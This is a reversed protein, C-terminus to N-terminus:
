QMPQREHKDLYDRSVFCRVPNEKDGVVLMSVLLYNRQVYERFAPFSEIRDAYNWFWHFCGAAVADVILDPKERQIDALFGARLHERAPSPDILFHCIAHRTAPPVPKQVYLSPMWGWVAMGRADPCISNLEKVIFQSADRDKGWRKSLPVEITSIAPIILQLHLGVAISWAVWRRPAASSDMTWVIFICGALMAIPQILLIEYHPFLFPPKLVAAVNAAALLATVILLDRARDSAAKWGKGLWFIAFCMLGQLLVSIPERSVLAVTRVLFTAGTLGEGYALNAKVYSIWFDEFASAAFVAGLILIAPLAVSFSFALLRVLRESTQGPERVMQWGLWTALAAAGLVSQLKAWPMLGLLLGALFDWALSHAPFRYRMAVCLLAGASLLAPVLESSFHIFDDQQALVVFLVALATGTLAQAASGIQRLTAYSLICIAALIAAAVIHAYSYRLPIGAKYMGLFIWSNVPGSTTGNMGRWPVPDISLRMGQAMLVSEDVNVEDDYSVSRIRSAFIVIVMLPIVVWASLWRATRACKGSQLSALAQESMALASM